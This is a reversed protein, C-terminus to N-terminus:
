MTPPFVMSLLRPIRIEEDYLMNYEKIILSYASSDIIIHPHALLFYHEGNVSLFLVNKYSANNCKFHIASLLYYRGPTLRSMYTTSHPLNEKQQVGRIYVAELRYRFAM